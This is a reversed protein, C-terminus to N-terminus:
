LNYTYHSKSPTPLFMETVKNYMHITGAVINEKCSLVTKSFPPNANSLFLAEMINSFILSQSFNSYPEVYVVNYHRIYRDTIHNRGGGPPGIAAVFRVNKIKRFEKENGVIDYWGQYDM